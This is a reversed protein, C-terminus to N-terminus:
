SRQRRIRAARKAARAEKDDTVVGEEDAGM